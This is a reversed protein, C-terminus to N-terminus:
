VTVRPILGAAHLWAHTVAASTRNGTFKYHLVTHLAENTDAAHATVVAPAAFVLVRTEAIVTYQAQAFLSRYTGAGDYDGLDIDFLNATGGAGANTTLLTVALPGQYGHPFLDAVLLTGEITTIEFKGLYYVGPTPVQTTPAVEFVKVSGDSNIIENFCRQTSKM